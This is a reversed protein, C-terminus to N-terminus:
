ESASYDFTMEIGVFGFLMSFFDSGGSEESTWTSSSGSTSVTLTEETDYGAGTWKVTIKSGDVSYTGSSAAVHPKEGTYSWEGDKLTFSGKSQSATVYNFTYIGDLESTTNKDTESSSSVLNFFDSTM